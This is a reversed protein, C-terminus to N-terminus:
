SDKMGFAEQLDDSLVDFDPAIVVWGKWQGGPPTPFLFVAQSRLIVSFNIVSFDAQPVL